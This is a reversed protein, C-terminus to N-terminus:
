IKERYQNPSCGVHKQFLRALAQSSKYGIKHSIDQVPLESYRLLSKAKEIRLWTYYEYPSLGTSYKFSRLFHFTSLGAEDALLELNLNNNIRDHM